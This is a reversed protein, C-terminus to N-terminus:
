RIGVLLSGEPLPINLFATFICYIFIIVSVASIIIIRLRRVGLARIMILLYPLTALYYGIKDLFYIYLISSGVMMIVKKERDGLRFKQISKGEVKLKKSIGQVILIASFAALLFLLGRPFYAAESPYPISIAYVLGSFILLIIGITIEAM